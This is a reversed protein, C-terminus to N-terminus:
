RPYRTRPRRGRTYVFWDLCRYHDPLSLCKLVSSLRCPCAQIDIMNLAWQAEQAPSASCAYTSMVQALGSYAGPFSLAALVLTM